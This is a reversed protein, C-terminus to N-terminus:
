TKLEPPEATYAMPEDASAHVLYSPKAHTSSSEGEIIDKLSEVARLSRDYMEQTLKYNSYNAIEFTTVLNKLTLAEESPISSLVAGMFERPTMNDDIGEFRRQTFRYFWCYLRSIGDKYDEFSRPMEEEAEETPQNEDDVSPENPQTPKRTFAFVAGIALVAAMALIINFPFTTITHLFEPNSTANQAATIRLSSFSGGARALGTFFGM